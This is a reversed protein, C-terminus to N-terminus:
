IPSHQKDIKQTHNNSLDQQTTTVQIIANFSTLKQVIHTNNNSVVFEIKKKIGGAKFVNDVWSTGSILVHEYCQREHRGLDRNKYLLSICSKAFLLLVLLSVKYGFIFFKILYVHNIVYWLWWIYLCHIIFLVIHMVSFTLVKTNWLLFGLWCL